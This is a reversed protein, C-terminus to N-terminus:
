NSEDKLEEYTINAKFVKYLGGSRTRENLKKCVEIAKDKNIYWTKNTQVDMVRNNWRLTKIIYRVENM